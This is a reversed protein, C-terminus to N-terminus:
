SIKFLNHNNCTQMKKGALYVSIGFFSLDANQADSTVFAKTYDVGGEYSNLLFSWYEKYRKYIQHPSEVLDKISQM